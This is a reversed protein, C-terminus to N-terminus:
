AQREARAREYVRRLDEPMEEVSAYTRSVGSADTVTITTSAVGTAAARRAAEIPERWEAPVDDLSGYVRVEGTRPDRVKIQETVRTTRIQTTPGHTSPTPMSPPSAQAAPALGLGGLLRRLLGGRRVAQGCSPCRDTEDPVHLGCHSCTM